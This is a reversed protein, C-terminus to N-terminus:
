WSPPRSLYKLVLICLYLDVMKRALIGGPGNMEEFGFTMTKSSPFDNGTRKSLELTSFRSRKVPVKMGDVSSM